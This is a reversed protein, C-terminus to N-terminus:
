KDLKYAPGLRGGIRAILQKYTATDRTHQTTTPLHSLTPKHLFLVATGRGRFFFFCVVGEFFTM